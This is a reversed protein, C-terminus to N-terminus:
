NGGSGSEDWGMETGYTPSVKARRALSLSLSSESVMQFLHGLKIASQLGTEEQKRM